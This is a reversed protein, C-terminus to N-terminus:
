VSPLQAQRNAPVVRWSKTKEDQNNPNPQHTTGGGLIRNATVGSTISPSSFAFSARTFSQGNPGFTPTGSPMQM